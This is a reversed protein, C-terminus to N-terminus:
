GALAIVTGFVILLFIVGTLLVALPNNKDM